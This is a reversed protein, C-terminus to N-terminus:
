LGCRRKAAIFQILHQRRDSKIGIWQQCLNQRSRTKAILNELGPLGKTPPHILICDFILVPINADFRNSM